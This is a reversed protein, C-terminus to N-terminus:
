VNLDYPIQKWQKPKNGKTYHQRTGDMSIHLTPAGEKKREAENYEMPLRVVTKQDM